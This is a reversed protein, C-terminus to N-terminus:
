PKKPPPAKPKPKAGTTEKKETAASEHFSRVVKGTMADIVVERTGSKGPVTLDYSYVLRDKSRELEAAAITGNAVRKMAIKAASDETIKAKSVLSDPMTKKYGQAHTVSASAAAAVLVACFLAAKM